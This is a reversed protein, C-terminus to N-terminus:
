ILSQEKFVSGCMVCKEPITITGNESAKPLTWAECNSCWIAGCSTCCQGSMMGGCKACKVPRFPSSSVLFPVNLVSPVSSTPSNPVTIPSKTASIAPTTPQSYVSWQPIDPSHPISNKYKHFRRLQLLGVLIGIFVVLFSIGLFIFFSNISIPEVTGTFYMGILALVMLSGPIIFGLYKRKHWGEIREQLYSRNKELQACMKKMFVVLDKANKKNQVYSILGGLLLLLGFGLAIFTVVMGLIKITPDAIFLFLPVGSGDGGALIGFGEKLNLKAANKEQVLKLKASVLLQDYTQHLQANINNIRAQLIEIRRKSVM